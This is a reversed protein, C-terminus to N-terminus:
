TLIIEEEPLRLSWFFLRKPSGFASFSEEDCDKTEIRKM